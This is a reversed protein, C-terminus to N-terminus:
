CSALHEKSRCRREPILKRDLMTQVDGQRGKLPEYLPHEKSTCKVAVEYWKEVM